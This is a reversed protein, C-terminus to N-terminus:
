STPLALHSLSGLNGQRHRIKSWLPVACRATESDPLLWTRMQQPNWIVSFHRVLTSLLGPMWYGWHQFTANLRLQSQGPQIGERETGQVLLGAAGESGCEEVEQYTDSGTLFFYINQVQLGTPHLVKAQKQEANQTDPKSKFNINFTRLWKQWRVETTNPEKFVELTLIDETGNNGSAM